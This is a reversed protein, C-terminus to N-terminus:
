PDGSFAEAGGQSFFDLAKADGWANASDGHGAIEYLQILGGVPKHMGRLIVSKGIGYQLAHGAARRTDDGDHITGNILNSVALIAEHEVMRLLGGFESLTYLFCEIKAFGM